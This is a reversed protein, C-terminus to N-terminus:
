WLGRYFVVFTVKSEKISSKFFDVDFEAMKTCNIVQLRTRVRTIVSALRYQLDYARISRDASSYFTDCIASADTIRYICICAHHFETYSAM